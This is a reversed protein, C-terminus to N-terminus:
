DICYLGPTVPSDSPRSTPNNTPAPTPNDTPAPTPDGTPAPTPNDTPAPTPNDTPAPTPDETPAPTPNYTPAPTPNDTPTPTPNDTPAPTPDNTPAPTPNDTPTPTPNDTPAPTPNDTPAPTPDDSQCTIAVNYTGSNAGSRIIYTYTAAAQLRTTTIARNNGSCGRTDADIQNTGSDQVILDTNFSSTCTDFTVDAEYAIQVTFEVDDGNGPWSGSFNDGCGFTGTPQTPSPTTPVPTVPAPTVPPDTPTPTTPQPTVPPDTPANTGGCENIGLGNDCQDVTTSGDAVFSSSMGGASNVISCICMVKYCTDPRM